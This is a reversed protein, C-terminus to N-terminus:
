SLTHSYIYEVNLATTASHTAIYELNLATNASHTAIYEVNLAIAASYTAIYEVNLATTASHTAIYVCEASHKCIRIGTAIPSIRLWTQLLKESSESWAETTEKPYDQKRRWYFFFVPWCHDFEVNKVNHPPWNDTDILRWDNRICCPKHLLYLRLAKIVM